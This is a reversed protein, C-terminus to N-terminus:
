GGAQTTTTQTGSGTQVDRKETRPTRPTSLDFM